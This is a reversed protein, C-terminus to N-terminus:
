HWPNTTLTKYIIRTIHRACARKAARRTVGNRQRRAIYAAAPGHHAMQTEICRHIVVAFRRNGGRNLRHTQQRGSSADLPAIGAWAALKAHNAFRNPDRVETIITAAAILGIGPISMLAKGVPPLQKGILSELHRIQDTVALGLHAVSRVVAATIDQHHRYRCLQLWRRRSRLRGLRAAREPDIARVVAKLQNAYQTRSKVLLRRATMLHRLQDVGPTVEFRTPNFVLASLAVLEADGRDTKNAHPRRSRLQNTMWPGVDFVEERDAVLFRALGYGFGHTNEIMWQHGVGIRKSAQRWGGPTNPAEWSEVCRGQDTVVAVTFQDAHPDVGVLM